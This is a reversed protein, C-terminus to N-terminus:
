RGWIALHTFLVGHHEVADDQERWTPEQEPELLRLIGWEQGTADQTGQTWWAVPSGHLERLLPNLEHPDMNLHLRVDALSVRDGREQAVFQYAAVLRATLESDAM